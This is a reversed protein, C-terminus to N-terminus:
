AAAIEPYRRALIRLKQETAERLLDSMTKGTVRSAARLKRQLELDAEIGPRVKFMILTSEKKSM